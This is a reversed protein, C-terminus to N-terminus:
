GRDRGAALGRRYARAPTGPRVAGGVSELRRVLDAHIGGTDAAGRRVAGVLFGLRLSAEGNADSRARVGLDEAAGVLGAGVTALEGGPQDETLCSSIPEGGSLLVDGPASRLADTFAAPGALCGKPTEEEAAGCGALLAGACALLAIAPRM